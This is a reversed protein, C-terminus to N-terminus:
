PINCDQAMEDAVEGESYRTTQKRQMEQEQIMLFSRFPFESEVLDKITMCLALFISFSWLPDHIVSLDAYYLRLIFDDVGSLHGSLRYSLVKQHFRAVSTSGSIKRGEIRSTDPVQDQGNWRV